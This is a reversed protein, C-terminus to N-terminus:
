DNLVTRTADQGVVGAPTQRDVDVTATSEYVPTLRASVILTAVVSAACFGLIRWRHRRMIWLYESLSIKPELPEEGSGNIASFSVFTPEGPTQSPAAPNLDIIAPLAQERNAFHM